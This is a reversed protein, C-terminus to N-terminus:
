EVFFKDDFVYEYEKKYSESIILTYNELRYLTNEGSSDEVHVLDGYVIITSDDLSSNNALRLPSKFEGEFILTLTHTENIPIIFEGAQNSVNPYETIITFKM